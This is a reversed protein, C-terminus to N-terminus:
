EDSMDEDESYSQVDDDNGLLGKLFYVTDCRLSRAAQMVDEKTVAAFGARCDAMSQSLGILRRLQYFSSIARTSDSLQAYGGILLEKAAELEIDEFDGNQLATIQAEIESQAAERQSQDIGCSVIMEGRDIIYESQCFYCLSKRERLYTFLRSMPSGGLMENCVMMAYFDPSCLTIDTRYGMVLHSQGIEMTEDVCQAEERPTIPHIQVAPYEASLEGLYPAFCARLGSILEDPPTQGIYFVHFHADKQIHHLLEELETPQVAELQEIQLPQGSPADAAFARRFRAMAYSAPHNVLAAIADILNSRESAIYRSILHADETAPAFLLETFLSLVEPILKTGAPLVRSEPVDSVFGLCRVQGVTTNVIRCDTAYLDDLHRNLLEQTPYSQTGRRLVPLLLASTPLLGHSDPLIARIGIRGIKFRDTPYVSLTLRPLVKYETPLAQLMQQKDM